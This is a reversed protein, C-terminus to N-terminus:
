KQGTLQVTGIVFNKGKGYTEVSVKIKLERLDRPVKQFYLDNGLLTFVAGKRGLGTIEFNNKYEPTLSFSYTDHFWDSTPRVCLYNWRARKRTPFWILFSSPEYAAELWAENFEYTKDQCDVKVPVIQFEDFLIGHHKASAVSSSYPGNYADYMSIDFENIAHKAVTALVFVLCVIMLWLGKRNTQM